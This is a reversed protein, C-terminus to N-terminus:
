QNNTRSSNLERKLQLLQRLADANINLSQSSRPDSHGSAATGQPSPELVAYIPTGASVIFM